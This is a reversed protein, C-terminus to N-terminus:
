WTRNCQMIHKVMDLLRTYIAFYDGGHDGGGGGIMVWATTSLKNPENQLREVDMPEAVLHKLICPLRVAQPLHHTPHTCTGLACPRCRM